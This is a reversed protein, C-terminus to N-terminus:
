ESEGETVASNVDTEETTGNESVNRNDREVAGELGREKHMLYLAESLLIKPYRVTAAIVEALPYDIYQGEPYMIRMFKRKLLFIRKIHGGSDGVPIIVHELDEELGYQRILEAVEEM